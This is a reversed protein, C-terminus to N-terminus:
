AFFEMWGTWVQDGVQHDHSPTVMFGNRKAELRSGAPQGPPGCEPFKVIQNHLKIAFFNADFNGTKQQFRPGVFLRM